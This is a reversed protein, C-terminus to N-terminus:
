IGGGGGSRLHKCVTQSAAHSVEFPVRDKVSILRGEYDGIILPRAEVVVPGHGEVEVTFLDGEQTAVKAAPVPGIKFM